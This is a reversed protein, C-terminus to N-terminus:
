RADGKAFRLTRVGSVDVITQTPTEVIRLVVEACAPCRLVIGPGRMYVRMTAVMSVTHCHACEGPTATMEAGFVSALLGGVGSGDVTLDVAPDDRMLAMRDEM